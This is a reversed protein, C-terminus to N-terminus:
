NGRIELIGYKVKLRTLKRGWSKELFLLFLVTSIGHALDFPFSSVCAATVATWTLPNVYGILYQLNMFWGFFVSVIFGFGYLMFRSSFVGRKEFVGGLYGILGWATMQWLTWPGQGLFMNSALASLSGTLFGAVPGLYMGSIIVIASNPNFSPIVSFITRGLAGIVSLVAIPILDRPKPKKVEFIIFFIIQLLILFVPVIIKLVETRLAM